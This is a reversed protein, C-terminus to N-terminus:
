FPKNKVPLLGCRLLGEIDVYWVARLLVASSVRWVSETEGCLMCLAFQRTVFWNQMVDCCFYVRLLISLAKNAVFGSAFNWMLLYPYTLKSSIAFFFDDANACLADVSHQGSVSDHTLILGHFPTFGHDFPLTIIIVTTLIFYIVFCSYELSNRNRIQGISVSLVRLVCVCVCVCVRYVACWVWLCVCVIYQVGCECVCVCVYSISCVVSVCM